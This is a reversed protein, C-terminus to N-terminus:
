GVAEGKHDLTLFQRVQGLEVGYQDITASEVPALAEANKLGSLREVQAIAEQQSEVNAIYVIRNGDHQVSVMHGSM